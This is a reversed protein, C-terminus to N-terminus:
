YAWRGPRYYYVGGRVVYSPAVWHAGHHPPYAYYGGVWDYHGHVWEYHGPIWVADRYPPAWRHEFHPPPPGQPGVQFDISVSASAQSPTLALFALAAGALVALRLSTKKM